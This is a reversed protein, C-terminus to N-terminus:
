YQIAQRVVQLESIDMSRAIKEIRHRYVDRSATDMAAYTGDPDTQLIREVYSLREFSESWDIAALGRLSNIANRVSIERASQRQHELHVIEDATTGIAALRRDLWDSLPAADAGENRLRYLLETAFTANVRRLWRTRVQILDELNVARNRARQLLSDLWKSAKQRQRQTHIVQLSLYKLNETLGIRIFTPIAWVEGM